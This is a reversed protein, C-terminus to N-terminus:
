AEFDELFREVKYELQEEPTEWFEDDEYFFRFTMVLEPWQGQGKWKWVGIQFCDDGWCHDDLYLETGELAEKIKEDAKEMLEMIKDETM